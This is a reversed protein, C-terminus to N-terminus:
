EETSALRVPSATGAYGPQAAPSGGDALRRRRSITAALDLRELKRYLARRSVGLMRAAAKKNGGARRLARVIHEREVSSLPWGDDAADGGPGTEPAGAAPAAGAVDRASVLPGDARLCAREVATQLERVNGPWPSGMLLAEADPALGALPKGLRAAADEVFVAVLYPIDERRDRLAPLRFEVVGLRYLLDQRFRGAQVQRRPDTSAAALVAVDVNHPVVGGVPLVEAHEIMRLLRSQAGATLRTVEDFYLVGRDAQDALGRRTAVRGGANDVAGFVHSELASPDGMACDVVVFPQDRRAGLAHLVRGLSQRGTGPEGILLAARLHPAFRRASDFVAQMGPSRGVMGGCSLQRALDNETAFVRRRREADDRVMALIDGFRKFDIPTQLYGLAGRKVAEVANDLSAHGNLLIARCLPQAEALVRLVDLGNVGPTRLDFVAADAQHERVLRTAESGSQCALVRYGQQEAFRRILDRVAPEDEVVLLVPSHSM